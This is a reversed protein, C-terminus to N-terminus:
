GKRQGDMQELHSWGPGAAERVRKVLRGYIRFSVQEGSGLRMMATDYFGFLAKGTEVEIERWPILLPPHFFRFPLM